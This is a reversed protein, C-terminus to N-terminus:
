YEDLKPWGIPGTTEHQQYTIRQPPQGELKRFIKWNTARVAGAAGGPLEDRVQPIESAGQNDKRKKAAARTTSGSKEDNRRILRM